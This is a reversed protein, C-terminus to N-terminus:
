EENTNPAEDLIERVSVEDRGLSRERYPRYIRDNFERLLIRMRRESARNVRRSQNRFEEQFDSIFSNMNRELEITYDAPEMIM